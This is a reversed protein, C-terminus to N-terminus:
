FQQFHWKSYTSTSQLLRRTNSYQAFIIKGWQIRTQERKWFQGQTCWWPSGETSWRIKKLGGMITRWPFTYKVWQPMEGWGWSTKLAYGNCYHRNDAKRQGPGEQQHHTKNIRPICFAALRDDKSLMWTLKGTPLSSHQPAKREPSHQPGEHEETHGLVEPNSSYPAAATSPPKLPM